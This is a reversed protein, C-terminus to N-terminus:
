RRVDSHRAIITTIVDTDISFVDAHIAKTNLPPLRKGSQRRNISTSDIPYEFWAEWTVYRSIDRLALSHRTLRRTSNFTEEVDNHRDNSESQFFVFRIMLCKTTTRLRVSGTLCCLLCIITWPWRVDHDIEWTGTCERENLMIWEYNGKKIESVCTMWYVNFDISHHCSFINSSNPSVSTWAACFILLRSTM